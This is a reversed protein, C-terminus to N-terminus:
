YRIAGGFPDANIASKSLEKVPTPPVEPSSSEPMPTTSEYVDGSGHIVQGHFHTAPTMASNPRWQPVRQYYYGLQTTDTPMYVMPYHVAASVGSGAQGYWKQPWYQTYEVPDRHIPQKIPRGWGHCSSGGCTGGHSCSCTGCGCDSAHGGFLSSSGGLQSWLKGLLSSSQGCGNGGWSRGLTWKSKQGYQQCGCSKEGCSANHIESEHGSYIHGTHYVKGSYVPESKGSGYIQQSEVGARSVASKFLTRSESRIAAANHIRVIGPTSFDDARLDASLAALLGGMVVVMIPHISTTRM